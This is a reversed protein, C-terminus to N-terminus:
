INQFLLIDTLNEDYLKLLFYGLGADGNMLGLRRNFNGSQNAWWKENYKIKDQIFSDLSDKLNYDGFNLSLLYRSSIGHCLCNEQNFNREVLFKDICNYAYQTKINSSQDLYHLVSLSGFLGNCWNFDSQKLNQKELEKLTDTEFNSAM